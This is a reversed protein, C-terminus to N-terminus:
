SDLLRNRIKTSVIDVFYKQILVSSLVLCFLYLYIIIVPAQYKTIHYKEIFPGINLVHIPSSCFISVAKATAVVWYYLPLQLIFMSLSANGLVISWPHSLLRAIFGRNYALLYIMGCQLPILLGNRLLPYLFTKEPIMLLLMLVSVVFIDTIWGLHSVKPNTVTKNSLFNKGLICGILFAPLHFLPNAHLLLLLWNNDSYSDAYDFLIFLIPPFMYLLWLLSCHKKFLVTNSQKGIILNIYLPFILYYFVLVSITWAPTNYLMATWPTWAKTLTLAAIAGLVAKVKSINFLGMFCFPVILLFGIVSIPYIRSLRYGYFKKASIRIRNTTPSFYVYTLIFGSLVFFLGTSFYRASLFNRLPQFTINM